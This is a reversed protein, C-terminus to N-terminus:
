NPRTKSKAMVMCLRYDEIEGEYDGMEYKLVGRNLYANGYTPDLEIAKTYREIAGEKDDLRNQM